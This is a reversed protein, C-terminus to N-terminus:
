KLKSKLEFRAFQVKRGHQDKHFAGSEDIFFRGGGARMQLFIDAVGDLLPHMGRVDERLATPTYGRTMFPWIDGHMNTSFVAPWDWRHKIQLEVFQFFQRPTIAMTPVFHQSASLRKAPHGLTVASM